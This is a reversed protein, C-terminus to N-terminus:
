SMGSMSPPGRASIGSPRRVPGPRAMVPTLRDLLVTWVVALVPGAPATLGLAGMGAFPCSAGHDKSTGQHVPLGMERLVGADPVSGSCLVMTLVPEDDTVSVEPMMGAPVLARLMFAAVLLWLGM